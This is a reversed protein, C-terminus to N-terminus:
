CKGSIKRVEEETRNSIEAKKWDKGQIDLSLVWTMTRIIIESYEASRRKAQSTYLGKLRIIDAGTMNRNETYPAATVKKNQLIAVREDDMMNPAIGAMSYREVGGSEGIQLEQAARAGSEYAYLLRERAREMDTLQRRSLTSKLKQVMEAIADAM